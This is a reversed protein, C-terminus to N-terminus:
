EKTEGKDNFRRQWIEDANQWNDYDIKIRDLCKSSRWIRGYLPQDHELQAYHIPAHDGSDGPFQTCEFITGVLTPKLGALQARAGFDVFAMPCAEFRCDFGGLEHFVSTELVVSNFILFHNPYFQSRVPDHFNIQYMGRNPDGLGDSGGETYQTVVCKNEKPQQDLFDICQQLGEKFFWGDDATWTIYRGSAGKMSIQQARTPCGYDQICKVNPLGQLAEPLEKHPGCFILEFSYRGVSEVISNYLREWNDKRIAALCVSLDYAKSM